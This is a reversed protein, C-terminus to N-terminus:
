VNNIESFLRAYASDMGSSTYLASIIAASAAGAEIVDRINTEDIGGIAVV